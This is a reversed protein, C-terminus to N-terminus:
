CQTRTGETSIASTDDTTLSSTTNISSASSRLSRSTSGHAMVGGSLGAAGCGSSELELGHRGSLSMM